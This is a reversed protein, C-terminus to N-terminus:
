SHLLKKLCSDVQGSQRLSNLDLASSLSSFSIESLFGLIEHQSRHPARAETSILICSDVMTFFNCLNSGCPLYELFSGKSDLSFILALCIQECLSWLFSWFKQFLTSQVSSAFIFKNPWMNPSFWLYCMESSSGSVLGFAREPKPSNPQM